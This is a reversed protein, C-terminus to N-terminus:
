KEDEWRGAVSEDPIIDVAHVGTIQAFETEAKDIAELADFLRMRTAMTGGAVGTTPYFSLVQLAEHIAKGAANTRHYVKRIEARKM